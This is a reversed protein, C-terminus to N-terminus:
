PVFSNEKKQNQERSSKDDRIQELCLRFHSPHTFIISGWEASNEIGLGAAILENTCGRKFNIEYGALGIRGEITIENEGQAPVDVGVKRSGRFWWDRHVCLITVYDSCNALNPNQRRMIEAFTGESNTRSGALSSAASKCERVLKGFHFFGKDLNPDNRHITIGRDVADVSLGEFVEILEKSQETSVQNPFLKNLKKVCDKAQAPTM